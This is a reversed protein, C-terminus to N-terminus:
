RKRKPRSKAPAHPRSRPADASESRTPLRSSSQNARPKPAQKSPELVPVPEGQVAIWEEPEEDTELSEFLQSFVRAKAEPDAQIRARRPSQDSGVGYALMALLAILLVYFARTGIDTKALDAEHVELPIGAREFADAISIEDEFLQKATAWIEKRRTKSLSYPYVDHFARFFEAIRSDPANSKTRAM